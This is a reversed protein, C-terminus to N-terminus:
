QVHTFRRRAFREMSAPAQETRGMRGFELDGFLNSRARPRTAREGEGQFRSPTKPITFHHLRTAHRRQRWKTSVIIMSRSPTPSATGRETEVFSAARTSHSECHLPLTQWGTEGTQGGMRGELRGYTGKRQRDTTARRADCRCVDALDGFNYNMGERGRESM